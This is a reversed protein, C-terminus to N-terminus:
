EIDEIMGFSEHFVDTEKNQFSSEVHHLGRHRLDPRGARGRRAGFPGCM